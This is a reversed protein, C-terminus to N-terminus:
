GALLFEVVADPRSLALLHGGPVVTADLGLRERAVRVQFDAPFLRDDRGCLVRTPVAPWAPLPWPDAFPTGSQVAEEGMAQATIDPPVDHFFTVAPDFAADPDRGERRDLERKAVDQGTATWWEGGTEGPRPIMANVLVIERASLRDCALPASLGGMSQAVLVPGDDAAGTPSGAAAVIADAYAPLDAADDGAPLEVAVAAHGHAQLLAVVRHWYWASGGAGPVLTFSTM